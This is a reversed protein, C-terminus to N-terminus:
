LVELIIVTATHRMKCTKEGTTIVLISKMIPKKHGVPLGGPITLLYKV